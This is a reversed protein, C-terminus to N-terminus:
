QYCFYKLKENSKTYGLKKSTELDACAGVRNYTFLQAVGRNFYYAGSEPELRIARSYDHVARTFDELMLHINGRLDYLMANPQAIEEMLMNIDTLAGIVDGSLKREISRKLVFGAKKSTHSEIYTHYRDPDFYLLQLKGLKENSNYFKDLYPNLRQATALDQRAESYRGLRSMLRSRKLYAEAFFPNQAIANDLTLIAKEPQGFRLQLDSEVFFGLIGDAYIKPDNLNDRHFLGTYKVQAVLCLPFSIISLLLLYKKM